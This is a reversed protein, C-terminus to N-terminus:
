AKLTLTLVALSAVPQGGKCSRLRRMAAASPRGVATGACGATTLGWGGMGATRAQWPQQTPSCWRGTVPVHGKTPGPHAAPHRALPRPCHPRAPMRRSTLRRGAETAAARGRGATGMKVSGSGQQTGAQFCHHNVKCPFNPELLATGAAAPMSCRDSGSGDQEGGGAASPVQEVDGGAKKGDPGRVHPGEVFGIAGPLAVAVAGATSFACPGQAQHWANRHSQTHMHQHHERHAKLHVKLLIPIAHAPLRVPASIHQCWCANPHLLHCHSQQHWTM